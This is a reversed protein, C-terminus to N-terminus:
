PRPVLIQNQLLRANLNVIPVNRCAKASIWHMTVLALNTESWSKSTALNYDAWAAGYASTVQARWADIAQSQSLSGAFNPDPKCTIAAQAAVPAFAFVAAVVAMPVAYRM